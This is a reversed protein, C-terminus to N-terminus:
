EYHRIRVDIGPLQAPIGSIDTEGYHYPFLVKPKVMKAARVLQESTMTYPQNCPLFAIDITGELDAMEPIDETDGAIYILLGDLTLIYGNDRGKPHFQLHGETTNYAPVAELAIDDALKLREGNAMATGSGYMEVCRRNMILQTNEKTLLAIAASDYHDFHEHTVFILDAKPLFSYDVTREHLKAVPDVYITKGDYEICISSHVLAHIEVLKGSNTTFIDTEVTTTPKGAKQWALIGGDLNYVECDQKALQEAATLSRKGGRCYVAVAGNIDKICEAFDAAKVDINEAGALHGEAYEKPTRVDILRVDKQAMVSTFEEVGVTKVAENSKTNGCGCFLAAFMTMM